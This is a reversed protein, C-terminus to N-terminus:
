AAEAARHQPAEPAPIINIMKPRMGIREFEEMIIRRVLGVHEPATMVSDHITLVPVDPHHLALRGCVRGIVFRSERRQMDQALCAYGDRKADLIFAWVNPYCQQFYKAIHNSYSYFKTNDGYLVAKFFDGKFKKRDSYGTAEMIEDYITGALVSAKFRQEDEALWPEAVESGDGTPEDATDYITSRLTHGEQEAKGQGERPDQVNRNKQPVTCGKPNAFGLLRKETMLITLFILQSNRIDVSALRRGDISLAARCETLLRTVNTHVRGFQCPKFEFEGNLITDVVLRNIVKAPPVAVRIIRKRGKKGVRRTVIKPLEDPQEEIANYAAETDIRTRRLWGELHQLTPELEALKMARNAVAIRYARIKAALTRSTVPVRRLPGAFQPSLGYSQSYGDFEHTSIRYSDDWVFVGNEILAHKVRGVKAPHIFTRMTQESVHVMGDSWDDHRHYSSGTVVKHALWYVENEIGHMEPYATAHFDRPVYLFVGTDM